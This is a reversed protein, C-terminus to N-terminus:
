VCRGLGRGLAKSNTGKIDDQSMAWVMFGSIGYSSAFRSRLRFTRESEFTIWQNGWHAIEVAAKRDLTVNLRKEKIKSQIESNFLIGPDDAGCSGRQAVAKASCGNAICLADTLTFGRGYFALGMVIKYPHVGQRLFSNFPEILETLNTHSNVPATSRQPIYLSGAQRNMVKGLSNSSVSTSFHRPQIIHSNTTYAAHETYSMNSRVPSKKLVLQPYHSKASPKELETADFRFKHGLKEQNLGNYRSTNPLRQSELKAISSHFRVASESDNGSGLDWAGHLDYSMVNFWDVHHSM